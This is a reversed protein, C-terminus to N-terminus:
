RYAVLVRPLGALDPQVTVADFGAARAHAMADAHQDAGIEVALLGHDRLLTSAMAILPIIADLGDNGAILAAQPEWDLEPSRWDRPRLYPPNSVIADFPAAFADLLNAAVCHVQDGVGHREANERAVRLAPRSIDTAIITARPLAHALAVAVCGSGTGVDCIQPSSQDTLYSVAIEVLHETEPRPILVVPGVSFELSYFEKRGLIYALPERQARRAITAQFVDNADEPVLDHLRAYLGARNISLSAALLVEADLRATTIGATALVQEAARLLHSLKSSGAGISPV